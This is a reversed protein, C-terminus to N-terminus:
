DDGRLSAEAKVFSRFIRLFSPAHDTEEIVDCVDDEMSLAFALVHDPFKGDAAEAGLLDGGSRVDVLPDPVQLRRTREAIQEPFRAWVVHRWTSDPNGALREAREFAKLASDTRGLVVFLVKPEEDVLRNFFERALLDDDTPLITTTM